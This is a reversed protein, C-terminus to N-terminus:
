TQTTGLLGSVFLPCAKKEARIRNDNRPPGSRTSGRVVHPKWGGSRKNATWFGSGSFIQCFASPVHTRKAGIRNLRTKRKQHNANYVLDFHTFLPASGPSLPTLLCSALAFKPWVLPHWTQKTDQSRYSSLPAKERDHGNVTETSIAM